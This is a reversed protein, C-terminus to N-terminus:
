QECTPCSGIMVTVVGSPVSPVTSSCVLTVTNAVIILPSIETDCCPTFTVSVDDTENTNNIRYYLCNPTSTPTRTPTSRPTAEPTIRPTKTPTITPTSTKTPTNTPTKTPTVTKTPTNTPTPTPTGCPHESICDTCNNFTSGNWTVSITGTLLLVVEYCKNDTGIIVQGIPTNIPLFCYNESKTCCDLVLFSTIAPQTTPTPTPTKTPTPTPTVNPITDFKCISAYVASTGNGPGLITLTTFPSLATFTFLGSGIGNTSNCYLNTLDQSATIVNSNITACCYECSTITPTGGNTSITFSDTGTPLYRYNVLRITVNNVPSSFSLTYTFSNQGLLLPSNLTISSSGCSPVFTISLGQSVSLASSPTITVGDIIVPDKFPLTNDVPCCGGIPNTPTPTPTSTKTVTPTVTKTPTVTQTPTPTKTKTPTNTPTATNTPTQTPTPAPGTSTNTPTPTFTPTTTSTPTLTPTKTITPTPTPTTGSIYLDADSCEPISSAGGIGIGLNQILTLTYPFTLSVEWVEGGASTVYIQGNEIFVGFPGLISNVNVDIELNGTNYDYQSLFNNGSVDGLTALIKPQATTTYLIDGLVYRNTFPFLITIGASITTIDIEFLSGGYVVNSSLLTTNNKVTLGNGLIFPSPIYIIRNFTASFPCNTYDYEYIENNTYMFIKNSTHAIDASSPITGSIYPNLITTTGLTFNYSTIIDGANFLISCEDLCPLGSTPTPTPTKTNTPTITPTLGSTPTVTPTNTPTPSPEPVTFELTVCDPSQSADNVNAPTLPGLLSTTYPPSTQITYLEGGNTPIYFFTGWQFISQCGNLTLPIDLHLVWSGGIYRLQTIYWQNNSTDFTTMIMKGSQNMIIDGAFRTTSPFTYLVTKSWTPGSIDVLVIQKGGASTTSVFGNSVLKNPDAINTIPDRYVCLSYFIFGLQLNTPNPSLIDRNWVASWPSITIDWERISYNSENILWLKTPTNAVGGWSNGISNPVNVPTSVSTIPNYVYANLSWTSTSLDYANGALIPFCNTNVPESTPIPTPTPTVIPGPDCIMIVSGSNGGNGNITLSTFPLSNNVIFQGAGCINGCIPDCDNNINSATIVNGSISACCGNCLAIEPTNNGTDTTLTFTESPSIGYGLLIITIFNVPQSFNLTYTFSGGFGLWVSNQLVSIGCYIETGTPATYQIISGSGTSTVTISGAYIISNGPLPLNSQNECDPCPLFPTQTPTPSLGPTKTNTPTVTNTPTNTPTNSPTPPPIISDSCIDVITGAEGGPGTITLTTFSTPNSITFTGGGQNNVPSGSVCYDATVVNGNITACCYDCSSLTPNGTNTTFTFSETGTSGIGYNILRLVIDNVPSSFSLIYTFPGTPGLWINGSVTQPSGVMCWSIFGGFSSYSVDGFGSSTLTVGNITVSNGLAPLGAVTPCVACVPTPTPTPIPPTPTPTPTVVECPYDITCAGCGGIQETLSDFTVTLTPPTGSNIETVCGDFSSSELYYSNNSFPFLDPPINIVRIIVNSDCCSQFTAVGPLPCSGISVDFSADSCENNPDYIFWGTDPFSDSDTSRPEGCFIGEWGIMEWYGNLNWRVTLPTAGDYAVWSPKSNYYGIFNFDYNM